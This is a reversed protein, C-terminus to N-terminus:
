ESEINTLTCHLIYDVGYDRNRLDVIANTEEIEKLQANEWDYFVRRMGKIIEISKQSAIRKFIRNINWKYEEVPLGNKKLVDTRTNVNLYIDAQIFNGLQVNVFPPRYGLVSLGFDLVIYGPDLYTLEGIVNYRNQNLLHITKAITSVTTVVKPKIELSFYKLNGVKFEGISDEIFWPHVGIQLQINNM